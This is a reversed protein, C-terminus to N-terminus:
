ETRKRITEFLQTRELDFTKVIKDLLDFQSKQLTKKSALVRKIDKLIHLDAFRDRFKRLAEYPIETNMPIKDAKQIDILYDLLEVINIRAHKIERHSLKYKKYTAPDDNFLFNKKLNVISNNINETIKSFTEYQKLQFGLDSM